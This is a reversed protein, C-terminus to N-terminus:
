SKRYFDNIQDRTLLGVIQQLPNTVCLADVTESDMLELAEQLTAKSDITLSDLRLAAIEMVDIDSQEDAQQQLYLHLDGPSLLTHGDDQAVLIWDPSKALLGEAGRKSILPDCKIYNTLMLSQVASSNLIQSLPKHRYDLGQLRMSTVFISPMNFIYRAILNSVVISIMAPFIINPNASLELIAVLAAMPANVVAGMMSGMGLLAYFGPQAVEQDAINAGIIGLLGGALAGIFLAPGILGAPIGLGLAIPTAICKALLIGAILMLSLQGHMVADLTDYGLGMIQPYFVAVAGTLVGATLLKSKYSLNLQNSRTMTARMLAIFLVAFLGIIVGLFAVYPIEHLSEIHLPPVTLLVEKGFMLQVVLTATAAAVIVPMFGIVTYELLVVEMAFVVGALPTNFTAAIGAATGCGALIRLTNNPLNLKQGLQSGCAAGLHVAPGEKGASHGFVLAITATLLQVLANRFPLKSQHYAMRELLHAVGVKRRIPEVRSLVAIILLSGIIPLTFHLWSPLDEFNESDNGPLFSTLPLELMFRFLGLVLGCLLGCILGLVVMQPLAENHALRYRFNELSFSKKPM